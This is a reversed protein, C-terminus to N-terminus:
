PDSWALGGAVVGIRGSISWTGWAIRGREGRSFGARPAFRVRRAAVSAGARTRAKGRWRPGRAVLRRYGHVVDDGREASASTSISLSRIARSARRAPRPRPAPRAGGVLDVPRHAPREVRELVVGADLALRAVLRVQGRRSVLRCLRGVPQSPRWLRASSLSSKAAIPRAIWVSCARSCICPLRGRRRGPSAGPPPPRASRRPRELRELPPRRRMASVSPPSPSGSDELHVHSEAGAPYAGGIVYRSAFPPDYADRTASGAMAPPELRSSAVAAPRTRSSREPSSSPPVVRHAVLSRPVPSRVVVRPEHPRRDLLRSPPRAAPPM